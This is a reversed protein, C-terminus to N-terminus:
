LQFQILAMVLNKKAKKCDAKKFIVKCIDSIAENSISINGFEL